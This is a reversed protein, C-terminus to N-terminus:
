KSKSKARNAQETMYLVDLKQVHYLLEDREDPCTIGRYQAYALIETLSIPQPGNFGAQRCANLYTFAEWIWGLDPWIEPASKLIPYNEPDEGRDIIQQRM